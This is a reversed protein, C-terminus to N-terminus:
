LKNLIPAVFDLESGVYLIYIFAKSLAIFSFGLHFELSKDIKPPPFKTPFEYISTPCFVNYKCFNSTYLLFPFKYQCWYICFRKAACFSAFVNYEDYWIVPICFLLSKAKM